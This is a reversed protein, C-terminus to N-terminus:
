FFVSGQIWWRSDRSFGDVDKGESSANPNDGIKKAWGAKVSYKGASVMDLGLGWGELSYSNKPVDILLRRDNQHIQGYDYYLSAIVDGFKSGTAVIYKADLSLRHGEDGAGEGPPYARVGAPGGLIMKEAGDLNTFAWQQNYIMQFSLKDNGRQIRIVQMNVKQYAGDTRAGTAGQDNNYSTLNDILDLEGTTYSVDALTFGGGLVKDILQGSTNLKYSYLNKNATRVGSASSKISKWDYGGGVFWAKEATRHLPYKVNASWNYAAGGSSPTTALTKGLTYDLESFAVNARLGQRGIPFDYALRHLHFPEEIANVSMFNVQDGYGSPNNVNVTTTVRDQGTYRSGYNDAAISGDFLPGEAVDLIIKSTGLKGGPAINAASTIGPNDNLNLIGRELEDQKIQVNQDNIIYDKILSQKLRLPYGVAGTDHILLPESEDLTGEQILINIVGENVDQKPIIAQALFYGQDQYFNTLTTAINQIQTFTLETNILGQIVDLLEEDTFIVNGTFSITKIFIKPGGDESSKDKDEILLRDPIGTPLDQLQKLQQEQQLIQGADIEGQALYLAYVPSFFLCLLGVRFFNIILNM